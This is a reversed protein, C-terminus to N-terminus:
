NVQSFFITVKDRESLSEHWEESCENLETFNDIDISGNEYMPYVLFEKTDLVSGVSNLKVLM